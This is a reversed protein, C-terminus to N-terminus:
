PLRGPSLQRRDDLGKDIQTGLCARDNVYHYLIGCRRRRGAETRSAHGRDRHASPSVRDGGLCRSEFRINCTVHQRIGREESRLRSRWSTKNAGSGLHRRLAVFVLCFGVGLLGCGRLSERDLEYGSRAVREGARCAEENFTAKLMGKEDKM